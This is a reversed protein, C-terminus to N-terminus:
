FGFVRDLALLYMNFTTHTEWCYDGCNATRIAVQLEKTQRSTWIERIAQAPLRGVVSDKRGYCIMVEGDPLVTLSSSTMVLCKFDLQQYLEGPHFVYDPMLNYYRNRCFPHEHQLSRIAQRFAPEDGPEFLLERDRVQHMANHQLPQFLIGDVREAWFSAYQRLERFNLRSITCRLTIRPSSRGSRKRSDRLRRVSREVTRFLGPSNRLYDHTEPNHSDMSIHLASLNMSSIEEINEELLAGNTGISVRKRYGDSLLRAFGMIGPIMLPEGGIISVGWVGSRGIARAIRRNEREPMVISEEMACHRCRCQCGTTLVWTIFAPCFFNRRRSFLSILSFTFAPLGRLIESLDFHDNLIARSNLKSRM